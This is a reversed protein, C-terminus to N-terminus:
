NVVWPWGFECQLAPDFSYRLAAYETTPVKEKRGTQWYHGFIRLFLYLFSACQLDRGEGCCHGPPEPYIDLVLHASLQTRFFRLNGLRANLWFHDRMFFIIPCRCTSM